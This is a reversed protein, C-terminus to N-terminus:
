LHFSLHIYIFLYLSLFLILTIKFKYDPKFQNKQIENSLVITLSKWLTWTFERLSCRRPEKASTQDYDHQYTEGTHKKDLSSWEWICRWEADLCCLHVPDNRFLIFKSIKQIRKSPWHTIYVTKQMVWRTIKAKTPCRSAQWCSNINICLVLLFM